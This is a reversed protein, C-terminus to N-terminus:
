KCWPHEVGPGFALHLGRLVTMQSMRSVLRGFVQHCLLPQTARHVLDLMCPLTPNSGLVLPRAPIACSRGWAVSCPLPLVPHWPWTVACLTPCPCCLAQDCYVPGSGLIHPQCLPWDPCVPALWVLVPGLRAQM